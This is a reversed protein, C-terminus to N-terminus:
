PSLELNDKTGTGCRRGGLSALVSGAGADRRQGGPGRDGNRKGLRRGCDGHDLCEGNAVATVLESNSATAVAASSSAWTVAAGAMVQGNQDRVEATLQETAGLANLETTAPSVTVTTAWPPDPLPPETGGDGCAAAWAVTAM